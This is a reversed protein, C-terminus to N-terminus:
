HFLSEEKLSLKKVLSRIGTLHQQEERRAEEFKEVFDDKGAEKAMEILLNWSDNDALEAILLAELTQAINTRPDTMVKMLGESAVATVDAGPTEATPDAGMSEMCEKLMHFHKLEEKQYQHLDEIPLDEENLECKTLLAEYLRVGTREFALREAIKNIFAHPVKGQMMQAGAKAMGKMETPPPVSGLPGSERIYTERTQRMEEAEMSPNLDSSRAINKMSEAMDKSTATGTRNKGLQVSKNIM